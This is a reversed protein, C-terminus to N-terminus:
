RPSFFGTIEGHGSGVVLARDLLTNQAECCTEPLLTCAHCAALNLEGLGQGASEICIPDSACIRASRIAARVTAALTAPDGCRVLGGLSGESDGATYLLVGAVGSERPGVYLRERISAVSYGCEFSLQRIMLHSFTHILVFRELPSNELLNGKVPQSGLPELRSALAKKNATEWRDLADESLQIYIGEGRAQVAPLWDVGLSLAALPQRGCDPPNLRTFGKLVTTETLREVLVVAEVHEAVEGPLQAVDVRKVKFDSRRRVKGTSSELFSAREQLRYEVESVPVAGVTARKNRIAAVLEDYGCGKDEALNELYNEFAAQGRATSKRIREWVKPEDLLKRARESFPPILISNVVEPFYLNSAGRQVARLERECGTETADPGLWPREGSCGGMLDNVVGPKFSRIMTRNENCAKCAVKLGALSQGGTSTLTLSDSRDCTATGQHAWREWPFDTVHGADCAVAFRVPLLRHGGKLRSCPTWGAKFSTESRCKLRPSKSKTNWKLRQLARCRPCYYWTPFRVFPTAATVPGKENHRRGIAPAPAPAYFAQLRENDARLRELLRGDVVSSEDRLKERDKHEEVGWADLGAAMLSEDPFDVISGVGYLRVAHFRRFLADFSM